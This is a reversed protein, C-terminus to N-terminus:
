NEKNAGCKAEGCKAEKIKNEVPMAKNGGCSGEKAKTDTEGGEEMTMNEGCSGEKASVQMYGSKLQKVSFPTEFSQAGGALIMSGALAAGAAVALKRKSTKDTM